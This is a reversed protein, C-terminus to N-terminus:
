LILNKLVKFIININDLQGVRELNDRVLCLFHFFCRELYKSFDGVLFFSIIYEFSELNDDGLERSGM